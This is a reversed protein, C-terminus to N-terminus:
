AGNPRLRFSELRPMLALPALVLLAGMRHWDLALFVDVAAGTSSCQSM